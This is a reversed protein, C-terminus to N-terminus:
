PANPQGPDPDPSKDFGPCFMRRVGSDDGRAFANPTCSFDFGKNGEMLTQSLIQVSSLGEVRMGTDGNNTVTSSGIRASSTDRLQIGRGGNNSVDV